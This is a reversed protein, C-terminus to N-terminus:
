GDKSNTPTNKKKKTSNNNIQSPSFLKVLYTVPVPNLFGLPLEHKKLKKLNFKPSKTDGQM